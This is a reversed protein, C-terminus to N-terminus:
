LASAELIESANAACRAVVAPTGVQPELRLPPADIRLLVVRKTFRGCVRQVANTV